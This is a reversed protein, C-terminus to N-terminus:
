FCVDYTSDRYFNNWLKKAVVVKKEEGNKAVVVM